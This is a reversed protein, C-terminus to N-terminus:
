KIGFFKTGKEIATTLLLEWNPFRQRVFSKSDGVLLLPHRKIRHSPSRRKLVILHVFNACCATRHIDFSRKKPVRMWESSM